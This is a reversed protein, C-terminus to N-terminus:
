PPIHKTTSAWGQSRRSFTHCSNPSRQPTAGAPYPLSRTHGCHGPPMPSQHMSAMSLHSTPPKCDYVCTAMALSIRVFCILTSAVLLPEFPRHLVRNAFLTESAASSAICGLKHGCHGPPMSHHISIGHICPLPPFNSTQSRVCV